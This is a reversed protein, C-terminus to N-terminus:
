SRRTSISMSRSRPDVQIFVVAFPFNGEELAEGYGRELAYNLEFQGACVAAGNVSINEGMRNRRTRVPLTVLGEVRMERTEERFPLLDRRSLEPYIMLVRDEIGTLGRTDYITQNDRIYLFDVNHFSLIFRQMMETVMRGEISVSKLFKRRAPTNFFISSRWLQEGRGKSFKEGSVEGATVELTVGLTDEGGVTSLQM